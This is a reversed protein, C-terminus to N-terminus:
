RIAEDLLAQRRVLDQELRCALIISPWNGPSVTQSRRLERQAESSRGELLALRGSWAALQAQFEADPINSLSTVSRRAEAITNNQPASELRVITEELMVLDTKASEDISSIHIDKQLTGCSILTGCSVMLMVLLLVTAQTILHKEKKM